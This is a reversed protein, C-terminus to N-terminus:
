KKRRLLGLSKEDVWGSFHIPREIYRWGDAEQGLLVKVGSNLSFKKKYIKSPGELVEVEQLVIGMNKKELEVFNLYASLLVIVFLPLSILWRSPSNRKIVIFSILLLLLTIALYGDFPISYLIHYVQDVPSQSLSIDVASLNQKVIQLNNLAATHLFGESMAQELQHRAMGYEEMKLYISGMNYHFQGASLLDKSHGMLEIAEAYRGEVYLSELSKLVESMILNDRQISERM